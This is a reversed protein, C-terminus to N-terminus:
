QKAKDPTNYSGPCKDRPLGHWEGRCRFCRPQDQHKVMPSKKTLLGTMQWRVIEAIEEDAIHEHLLRLREVLEDNFV